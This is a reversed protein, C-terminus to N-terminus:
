IDMGVRKRLLRREINNIIDRFGKKEDREMMTLELAYRNRGKIPGQEIRRVQTEKVSLRLDAKKSPFNFQVDTM